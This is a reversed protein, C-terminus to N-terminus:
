VFTKRLTKYNSFIWEMLWLFLGFGLFLQFYSDYSTFSREEYEKKELQEVKRDIIELVDQDENLFLYEGGGKSALERLLTENLRTRVPQGQMDRKWDEKGNVQIPIFSGQTSGVGIPFIIMGNQHAQEAVTLADADHDEGDTIIILAKHFNNDKSFSEEVTLISEGIATGQTGALGPHASQIFLQAAAYDRTLPMQLYANGAFLVLGIREGKLKDVLKSAFRKSRELRNPAIDQCYMSTSIDLAIFIDASRAKVKERKSGWQPNAWALIFFALILLPFFAIRKQYKWSINRTIRQVLQFEGISKQQRLYWRLGFYLIFGLPLLGVLYQLYINYEFKFM